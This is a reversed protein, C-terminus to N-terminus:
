RRGPAPRPDEMLDRLRGANADARALAYPLEALDASACVLGAVRAAAEPDTGGAALRIRWLGTSRGQGSPTGCICGAPRWPENPSGTPSAQPTNRM